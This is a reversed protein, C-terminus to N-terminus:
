TPDRQHRECQKSQEAAFTQGVVTPLRKNGGRVNSIDATKIPASPYKRKVWIARRWQPESLMTPTEVHCPTPTPSHQISACM